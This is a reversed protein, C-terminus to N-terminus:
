LHYRQSWIIQETLRAIHYVENRGFIWECIILNSFPVVSHDSQGPTGMETLVFQVAKRSNCQKYQRTRRYVDWHVHSDFGVTQTEHFRLPICLTSRWNGSFEIHQDDLFIWHFAILFDIRINLDTQTSASGSKLRSPFISFSELQWLTESNIIVNMEVEWQFETIDMNPISYALNQWLFVRWISSIHDIRCDWLWWSGWKSRSNLAVQM